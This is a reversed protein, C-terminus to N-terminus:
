PALGSLSGPCPPWNIGTPTSTLNHVPQIGQPETEPDAIAPAAPVVPPHPSEPVQDRPLAGPDPTPWWRVQFLLSNLTQQCGSGGQMVAVSRKLSHAHAVPRFVRRLPM